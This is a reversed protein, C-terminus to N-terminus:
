KKGEESAVWCSIQIQDQTHSEVRVTVTLYSKVLVWCCLYPFLLEIYARHDAPHLIVGMSFHCGSPLHTPAFLDYPRIVGMPLSVLLFTQLYLIRLQLYSLTAVTILICGEPLTFFTTMRGIWRSEFFDKRVTPVWSRVEGTIGSSIIQVVQCFGAPPPMGYQCSVCDFKITGKWPLLVVWPPCKVGDVPTSVTMGLYEPTSLKGRIDFKKGEESAVWYSIKVQDQTHSEVNIPTYVDYTYVVDYTTTYKGEESAVWCSIKVQVTIEPSIMQVVQRFEAPPPTGYQCSVCDFKVTGKWPLLVVWPPCKVGDVPTSATMGPYEPTSLKGRIDFKLLLCSSDVMVKGEESAVWCSIKIEQPIDVDKDTEPEENDEIGDESELEINCVLYYTKNVFDEDELQSHEDNLGSTESEQWPISALLVVEILLSMWILSSMHARGNAQHSGYPTVGLLSTQLHLIRLQTYLLTAMGGFTPSFHTLCPNASTIEPSIMQVVQCFGAPPPTGYQCSVCDFKVTGKWPLLVVWPPCKVGDVPTSATM